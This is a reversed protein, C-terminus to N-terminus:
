FAYGVGGNLGWANGGRSGSNNSEGILYLAFNAQAFAYLGDVLFVRVNLRAAALLDLVLFGGGYSDASSGGPGVESVQGTRFELGAQLAFMLRGVCLRVQPQLARIVVLNVRVEDLVAKGTLGNSLMEQAQGDGFGVSMGWPNVNTLYSAGILAVGFYRGFTGYELAAGMLSRESTNSLITDTRGTQTTGFRRAVLKNGIFRGYEFSVQFYSKREYSLETQTLPEPPPPVFVRTTSEPTPLAV